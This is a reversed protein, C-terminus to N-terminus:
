LWLKGVQYTILAAVYALGTMYTFTFIACSYGLLQVLILSRMNNERKKTVTKVTDFTGVFVYKYIGLLIRKFLGPKNSNEKESTETQFNFM